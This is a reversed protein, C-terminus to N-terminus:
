KAGMIGALRATAFIPGKPGIMENSNNENQHHLQFADMVEPPFWVSSKAVAIRKSIKKDGVDVMSIEDGQKNLHTFMYNDNHEDENITDVDIKREQMFDGSHIMENVKNMKNKELEDEYLAKAERAKNIANMFESSYRHEEKQQQQYHNYNNDHNNDIKTINSWAHKEENTFNYIAEREQYIEEMSPQQENFNSNNYHQNNNNNNNNNNNSNSNIVNWIDNQNNDIDNNDNQNNDIDNNDNNSGFLEIREMELEKIQQIYLEHHDYGNNKHTDNISGSSNSNNNHNDGDNNNSNNNFLRKQNYSTSSSSSMIDNHDYHNHDYNNHNNIVFLKRKFQVHQIPHHHHHRRCCLLISSSSTTSLTSIRQQLQRKVATKTIRIPNYLM